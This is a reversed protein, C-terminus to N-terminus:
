ELEIIKGNSDAIQFGGFFTYNISKKAYRDLIPNEPQFSRNIRAVSDIYRAIDNMSFDGKGNVVKVSRSPQEAFLDGVERKAELLM